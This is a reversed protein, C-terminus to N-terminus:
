FHSPSTVYSAATLMAALAATDEPALDVTIGEGDGFLSLTSSTGEKEEYSFVFSVNRGKAAYTKLTTLM